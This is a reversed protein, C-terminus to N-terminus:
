TGVRRGPPLEGQLTPFKEGRRKELQDIHADIAEAALRGLSTHPTSYAAAARLRDLTRKPLRLKRDVMEVSSEDAEEVAVRRATRPPVREVAAKRPAAKPEPAVIPEAGQGAEEAVQPPPEPAKALREPTPAPAPERRSRFMGLLEANAAQKEAM